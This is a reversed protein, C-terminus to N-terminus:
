DYYAGFGVGWEQMIEKIRERREPSISRWYYDRAAAGRWFNPAAFKAAAMRLQAERTYARNIAYRAEGLAERTREGTRNKRGRSYWRATAPWVKSRHLTKGRLDHPRIAVRTM